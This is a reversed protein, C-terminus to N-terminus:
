GTTPFLYRTEKKAYWREFKHIPWEYKGDFIRPLIFMSAIALPVLIAVFLNGYSKQGGVVEHTEQGYDDPVLIPDNASATTSLILVITSLILVIRIL